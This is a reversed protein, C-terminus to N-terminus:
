IIGAALRRPIRIPRNLTRKAMFSGYHSWEVGWAEKQRAEWLLGAASRM